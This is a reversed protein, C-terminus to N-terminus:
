EQAPHEDQYRHAADLAIDISELLRDRGALAAAIADPFVEGHIGSLVGHVFSIRGDYPTRQGDDTLARAPHGEPFVDSHDDFIADILRHCDGRLDPM